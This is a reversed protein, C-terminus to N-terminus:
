HMAFSFTLVSFRCGRIPYLVEMIRLLTTGSTVVDDVIMVHKGRLDEPNKIAFVDKMTKREELTKLSQQETYKKRMLHMTDVPLGVIDAIGLCLWESQNFGRERLRRRHLAVPMLMDVDSFFDKNQSLVGCAMQQGLWRALEHNGIFKMDHVITAIATEKDYYAYAAGRVFKNGPATEKEFLAFSRFLQELRNARNAAEETRRLSNWCDNCVFPNEDPLM